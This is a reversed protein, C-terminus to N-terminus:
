PFKCPPSAGGVCSVRWRCAVVDATQAPAGGWVCICMCMCMCMCVCACVSCPCLAACGAAAFPPPSVGMDQLCKSLRTDQAHLDVVDAHAMFLRAVFGRESFVQGCAVRPPPPAHWWGRVCKHRPRALSGTKGAQAHLLIM